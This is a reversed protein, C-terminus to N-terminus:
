SARVIPQIRDLEAELRDAASELAFRTQLNLWFEASTGFFKALRLATDPTLDVTEKALREIRTRPVGLARAVMGASLRMPLLFDERLVEGPHVPAPKQMM